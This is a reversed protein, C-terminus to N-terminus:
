GTHFVKTKLSRHKGFHRSSIREYRIFQDTVEYNLASGQISRSYCCLLTALVGVTIFFADEYLQQEMTQQMTLVHALVQEMTANIPQGFVGFQTTNIPTVNHLAYYETKNAAAVSRVFFDIGLMPLGEKTFKFIGFGLLLPWISLVLCTQLGFGYLRCCCAHFLARTTGGYNWPLCTHGRTYETDERSNYFVMKKQPREEEDEEDDEWKEESEYHKFQTRLATGRSGKLAQVLSQVATGPAQYFTLLLWDVLQRKTWRQREQENGRLRSSDLSIPLSLFVPDKVDRNRSRATGSGLNRRSGGERKEELSDISRHSMSDERRHSMSEERRSEERRHSKHIREKL